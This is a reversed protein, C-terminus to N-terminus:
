FGDFRRVSTSYLLAQDIHKMLWISQSSGNCMTSSETAINWIWFKTICNSLGSSFISFSWHWFQIFLRDVFTKKTQTLVWVYFSDIVWVFLFLFVVFILPYYFCNTRNCAGKSQATGANFQSPDGYIANSERKSTKSRNTPMGYSALETQKLLKTPTLFNLKSREGLCVRPYGRSPHKGVGSRTSHRCCIAM